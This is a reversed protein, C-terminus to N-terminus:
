QTIRAAPNNVALQMHSLTPMRHLFFALSLTAGKKVSRDEDRKVRKWERERRRRERREHEECEV